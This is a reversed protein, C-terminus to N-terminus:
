IIIRYIYIKTVSVLINKRNMKDYKKINEYVLDLNESNIKLKLIIQLKYKKNIKSVFPAKPSYIKYNNNNNNNFVDYFKTAEETLIKKDTYILEILLIDIFPPYEAVKRAVIEQKYFDDYSNKALCKIAYNNTDYAQVIVKGRLSGRGSRGAVQLLNQFGKQTSMYDNGAFTNDANIIAVLTVNEIDHGKSIMQTGVLIDAEKNNFKNLIEEHSGKKITTDADMRLIKASPFENLLEEEIKQTGTGVEVVNNSFCKPCVDIKKQVYSCYHCLLLNSKKHYTLNVECNMCKLIYGCSKCMISNAFGRRNLFVFTQEGKIINKNIAEKLKNSLLKNGIVNEDKMDVIEIKAEKANGPRKDIRYYAIEKLKKARYMTTIDPTASGLVLSINKTRAIYEAVEATIYKPTSGSNYSTDHEEDIIILELNPIPVFLASRPGIVIKVKNELIKKWEIKKESITMKSHLVSITNGFRAFFRAKTQVTLSIEPVLVIASGGNKICEEIVQLYIETKGSGTIGHILNINTKGSKMKKILDDIIIKQEDNPILKESKKFNIKETEEIERKTISIYGNKEVLKIIARSISLGNIIDSTLVFDNHILFRLLKIHRASTIKGNEINEEIEFSTTNLSVVEELNGLLEKKNNIGRTGPPLMLKLCDYVNCFYIKSMWKAMKLKDMNLYNETDLIDLISKLKYKTEVQNEELKVIIGETETGKGQGFNVYVRKGIEVMCELNEPVKYNYVKNLMRATSDILVKAIM